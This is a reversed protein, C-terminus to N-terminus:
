VFFNDVDSKYVMNFAEGVPIPQSQGQRRAEKNHEIFRQKRRESFLYNGFAILQKALLYKLVPLLIKRIINKM